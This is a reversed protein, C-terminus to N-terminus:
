KSLRKGKSALVLERTAIPHGPKLELALNCYEIAERLRRIKNCVMGAYAFVDADEVGRAILRGLLDYAQSHMKLMIYVHAAEIHAPVHQNDLEIANLFSRLAREKMDKAFFAKGLKYHLTTYNANHEIAKEYIVISEDVKGDQLLQDASEMYSRALNGTTRHASEEVFRSVEGINVLVASITGELRRRRANKETLEISIAPNDQSTIFERIEAISFKERLVKSLFVIQESDKLRKKFVFVKFKEAIGLMDAPADELSTDSRSIVKEDTVAGKLSRLDKYDGKHFYYVANEGNQLIYLTNNQIFGCTLAVGIKKLKGKRFAFRYIEENVHEFMKLLYEDPDSSLVAAPNQPDLGPTFISERVVELAVRAAGGAEGVDVGHGHILTFFGRPRDGKTPLRYCLTEEVKERTNKGVICVDSFDFPIHPLELAEKKDWGMMTAIDRKLEDPTKYQAGQNRDLLRMVIQKAEPSILAEQVVRITDSSIHDRVIEEEVKFSYPPHGVLLEFFVLGLSYFDGTRTIEKNKSWEFSFYESSTNAINDHELLFRSLFVDSIRAERLNTSLFVNTPKFGGYAHVNNFYLFELANALQYIIHAADHLPLMGRRILLDELSQGADDMAIYGLEFHVGVDRVKVLTHDELLAMQKLYHRFPENLVPYVKLDILKVVCKEDKEVDKASFVRSYASSAIQKGIKFRAGFLTSFIFSEFAIRSEDEGLLSSVEDMAEKYSSYRSSLDPALFRIIVEQIPLPVYDLAAIAKSLKETSELDTPGLVDEFKSATLLELCTAGLGYLDSQPGFPIGTPDEEEYEDKESNFEDVAVFSQIIDGNEDERLEPLEMLVDLDEEAIRDDIEKYYAAAFATESDRETQTKNSPIGNQLKHTVPKGDTQVEKVELANDSSVTTDESSVDTVAPNPVTNHAALTKRVYLNAPLYRKFYKINAEDFDVAAPAVGFLMLSATGSELSFIINDPCVHGHCRIGKDEAFLLARLIQLIISLGERPKIRDPMDFSSLPAGIDPYVIFYRNNKRGAALPPHIGGFRKQALIHTDRLLRDGSEETRLLETSFIYAVAPSKDSERFGRWVSCTSTAQSEGVLIFEGLKYKEM